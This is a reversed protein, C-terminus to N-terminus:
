RHSSPGAGNSSSTTGRTSGRWEAEEEQVQPDLTSGEIRAAITQLTVLDGSSFAERAREELDLGEQPAREEAMRAARLAAERERYRPSWERDLDALQALKVLAADRLASPERKQGSIERGEYLHEGLRRLWGHEQVVRKTSALEQALALVRTWDGADLAQQIRHTLPHISEEALKLARFDALSFELEALDRARSLYLDACATDLPALQLLLEALKSWWPTRPIPQLQAM